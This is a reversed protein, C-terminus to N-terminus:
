TLNCYLTEPKTDFISITRSQSRSRKGQLCKIGPQKNNQHVNYYSVGILVELRFHSSQSHCPTLSQDFYSVDHLNKTPNQFYGMAESSLRSLLFRQLALM